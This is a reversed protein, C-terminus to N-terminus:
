AEVMYDWDDSDDAQATLSMMFSLIISVLLKCPIHTNINM